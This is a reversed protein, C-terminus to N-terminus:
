EEYTVCTQETYLAWEECKRGDSFICMGYQNGQSDTRIESTGGQEECSVSAPNAMDAITQKTLTYNLGSDIEAKESDLLRLHDEDVILLYVAAEDPNETTLEYVLANKDTKTGQTINWQGYTVFPEDGSDIYTETLIFFGVTADSSDRFLSLETEIGPCDACPLAGTFDESMGEVVSSNDRSPQIQRWVFFLIGATVLLGFLMAGLSLNKSKM